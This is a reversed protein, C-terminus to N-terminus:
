ARWANGQKSSGARFACNWSCITRGLPYWDIALVLSFSVLAKLYM